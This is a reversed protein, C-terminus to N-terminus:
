VDNMSHVFGLCSCFLRVELIYQYLVREKALSEHRIAISSDLHKKKRRYFLTHEKSVDGGHTITTLILGRSCTAWSLDWSRGVFSMKHQHHLSFGKEPQGEEGRTWLWGRTRGNIKEKGGGRTNWWRFQIRFSGFCRAQWWKVQEVAEEVGEDLDMTFLISSVCVFFSIFASVKSPLDLMLCCLGERERERERKRQRTHEKKKRRRRMQIFPQSLSLFVSELSTAACTQYSFHEAKSCAIIRDKKESSWSGRAKFCVCM